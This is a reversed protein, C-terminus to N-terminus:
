DPQSFRLANRFPDIVLMETAGWVQKLPKHAPKINALQCRQHWDGINEVYIYIETGSHGKGHESLALELEDKKLYAFIPFGPEHQWTFKEEFGLGAIYFKKAKAYDDIQLVPVIKNM